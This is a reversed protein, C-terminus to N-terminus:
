ISIEGCSAFAASDDITRFLARSIYKHSVLRIFVQQVEEQARLESRLDVPSFWEGEWVIGRRIVVQGM